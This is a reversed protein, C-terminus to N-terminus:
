RQKLKDAETNGFSRGFIFAEEETQFAQLKCDIPQGNISIEEVVWGGQVNRGSMNAVKVSVVGYQRIKSSM